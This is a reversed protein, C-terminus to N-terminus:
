RRPRAGSMVEAWDSWWPLDSGRGRPRAPWADDVRRAAEISEGVLAAVDRLQALSRAIVRTLTGDVARKTTRRTLATGADVSAVTDM